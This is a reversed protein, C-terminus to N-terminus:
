KRAIWDRKVLKFIFAAEGFSRANGDQDRSFVRTELDEIFEEMTEKVIKKHEKIRIFHHWEQDKRSKLYEIDREEKEIM